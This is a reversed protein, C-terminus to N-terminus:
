PDFTFIKKTDAELEAVHGLPLQGRVLGIYGVGVSWIDAADTLHRTFRRTRGLQDAEDVGVTFPIEINRTSSSFNSSPRL